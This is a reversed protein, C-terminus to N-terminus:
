VLIRAGLVDKGDWPTFPELLQLRDSTPAVNVAVKSGDAAPAQFGREDKMFGNAPLEPASPADLKVPKGDKDPRTATAPNFSLSGALAKAVVVEPSGIFALTSKFGDNRGRFNRNFSTVIVNPKGDEKLDQRNWQGICPGCANALIVGGLETLTNLQGDRT